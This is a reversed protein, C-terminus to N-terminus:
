RKLAVGAYVSCEVDSFPETDTDPRWTPCSVLGPSIIDWGEFFRTFEKLTRVQAPTGAAHYAAVVRGWEAPAFDPTAHSMVLASGSPLGAKYQEVIDFAGLADPVFHLLANLSLAVPQEFDLNQRVVTSELVTQPSTADAEVYATRGQDTGILLHRAHALVIRDNDAYVVKAAPNVEQAVEHVNPSTPIGTGIDLFQTFGAQALVRTSRQVFARNARASSRLWPAGALAQGAAQRDAEFNTVGGLFYDYMRATHARDLELDIGEYDTM